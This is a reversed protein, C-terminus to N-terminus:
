RKLAVSLRKLAERLRPHKTDEASDHIIAAAFDSHRASPLKRLRSSRTLVLKVKVGRLSPDGPNLLSILQPAFYRLRTAWVPSDTHLILQQDRKQAAICHSALDDPLLQRVKELLAKQTNIERELRRLTPQDKLLHRVSKPSRAM